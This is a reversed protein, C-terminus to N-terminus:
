FTELRIIKIQYIPCTDKCIKNIVSFLEEEINDANEIVLYKSNQKSLYKVVENFVDMRKKTFQLLFDRDASDYGISIEIECVKGDRVTSSITGFPDYWFINGSVESTKVAGKEVSYSVESTGVYSDTNSKGLSLCGSFSFIMLSFVILNVLFFIKRNM